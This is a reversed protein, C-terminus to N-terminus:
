NNFTEQVHTNWQKVTYTKDGQTVGTFNGNKDINVQMNVSFTPRKNEGFLKSIGGQEKHAGLLLNTKGSQDTIFAETSPFADGTFTGTVNLVGNDLDETINLNAQVDLDPTVLGPTIPDKASDAFDLGVSNKSTKVNSISSTPKPTESVAVPMQNGERGAIARMPYFVTEDSRSTSSTVTGKAPDVTFTSEVRSTSAPSSKTSAGRGDGKFSDRPGVVNASIFSRIHIPWPLAGDPDVFLLPSNLAYNYPSQNHMVEAMPDINMWRGLWKDYNRFGFDM